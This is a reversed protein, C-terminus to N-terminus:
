KKIRLAKGGLVCTLTIRRDGEIDELHRSVPINGSWFEEQM